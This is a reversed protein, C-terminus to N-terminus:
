RILVVRRVRTQGGSGIAVLYTGSAAQRGFRNNGDWAFVSGAATADVVLEGTVTFIRVRANSPMNSFQLASAYYPSTGDGSAEWPQPFVQVASIDASATVFFPAFVSFHPVFAILTHASTDVQSPVLTWQGAAPDYRFLRLSKQDRGVPVQAPDYGMSLRVVSAPQLGSASLEIGVNSGFPTLGAVENSRAVTLDLSMEVMVSISTGVPFAAAPVDVEVQTLQPFAPPLWLILDAAGTVTGSSIPPVATAASGFSFYDPLGEWSLAAVRAYYTTACTLGTVTATSVGPAVTSSYVVGSGDAVTSLELRYGECTASFPASPLLQWVATASTLYVSKFAAAAPPAPLTAALAGVSLYDGDPDASVSKAKVRAHYTTNPQLGSLLVGSNMTLSSQIGWAFSSSSSVQAQYTTGSSLAGAGWVFGLTTSSRATVPAALALPAAVLTATAQAATFPTPTNAQNLAAVAAYYTANSLLGFFSVSNALTNSSAAVVSCAPDACARVVYRTPSANNGSFSFTFGGQGLGSFSFPPGPSQVLTYTSGLVCPATAGGTRNLAFVRASYLTNPTLSPSSFTASINRTVSSAVISLFGSDLALDAQYLTDPANGNASWAVTMSTMYLASFPAAAATPVAALTAVPGASMYAGGVAQVRFYYSTDSLLSSFVAGYLESGSQSGALPSFTPVSSFEARYPVPYPNGNRTWNFGITQATISTFEPSGPGPPVLDTLTTTIRPLYYFNVGNSLNLTGLRLHYDTLKSLGSVQLRGLAYNYTTSSFIPPSFDANTSAQLVYGACANAACPTWSVTISSIYAITTDTSSLALALTATSPSTGGPGEGAANYAKVMVSSITNPAFNLAVSSGVVTAALQATNSAYYVRYSSAGVVSSWTWTISSTGLTVATFNSPASSPSCLAFIANILADGKFSGLGTANDYGTGANYYGNNGSRIDNFYSAYSAGSALQYLTPNAFGLPAFGSAALKQNLLATLAAWLPAAVSTGGFNYWGGQSYISYPSSVSDANLAVDPVNRHASSAGIGAQYNPLSWYASVGGGTAGNSTALHNWTTEAVSLPSITGSLSTGGVGTVYPQSAPDDVQYGNNTICNGSVDQQDYAGCDGAAAYITQGQTALRSFVQSQLTINSSGTDQEDLGWSTSVAQALGDTAIRNYTDYVGQDTNPGEYVLIQSVGPALAAVMEIDLSVEDCGSGCVNSVGDVLVPTVTVPSIGFHSEYAAIDAPAYGDLEFLAVTQGSGTLTGGLGYIAKIDSPALGGLPGTGTLTSPKAAGSSSRGAAGLSDPVPHFRRLHPKRAGGVNSLGLVAHLHPVLSAPVMPETEHARFLQGDAGRYRHLQVSFAKEVLRSPGSVKVVSSEPRDEAANVTLGAAQAFDKLKQKKEALDFKQSFEAPSLFHKRAATTPGYLQILTKDLLAQDFRVVLSLEVNEDAPLRDRKSATRIWQPVHGALAVSREVAWAGDASFILAALVVRIRARRLCM